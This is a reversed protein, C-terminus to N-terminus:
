QHHRLLQGGGGERRQLVGNSASMRTANPFHSTQNTISSGENQLGIAINRHLPQPRLGSASSAELETAAQAANLQGEGDGRGTPERRSIANSLTLVKQCYIRPRIFLVKHLDSEKNRQMLHDVQLTKFQPNHAGYMYQM